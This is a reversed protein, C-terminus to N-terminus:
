PMDQLIDAAVKMACTASEHSASRLCPLVPLARIHGARPLGGMPVLIFASLVRAM